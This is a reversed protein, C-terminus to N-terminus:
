AATAQAATRRSQYLARLRRAEQPYKAKFEEGKAPIRKAVLDFWSLGPLKAMTRDIIRFEEMGEPNDFLLAAIFGFTDSEGVGDGVPGWFKQLALKALKQAFTSAALRKQAQHYYFSQHRREDKALRLLMKSLEKNETFRALQTYALAATMENIAGWSMHAAAFHKTAYALAHSLVAEIDEQFSAAKTIQTYRNQDPARGCASLFRDIARGHNTEEYVWCALFTVVEQDRAMHGALLDRLYLITHSEVDAMYRMIRAEDDTIGVKAIYDWDLDSTDVARSLDVFREIDFAM